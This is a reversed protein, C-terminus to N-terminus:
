KKKDKPAEKKEVDADREKIMDEILAAQAQLQNVEDRLQSLQSNLTNRQDTKQNWIKVKGEIEKQITAKRDEFTPKM